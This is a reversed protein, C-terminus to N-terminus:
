ISSKFKSARQLMEAAHALSASSGGGALRAIEQTRAEGALASLRTHTANEDSSKEILFHKDAMSAIQPLHTVCVVQRGRSIVALKEAVVQAIRGSIGTDIEDFIMTPIGGRDAAVTKLALMIRSVEGGSAVKRLPKVPEGRNTSIYFEAMDFGNATFEADEIGLMDSFRVEFCANEMGLDHLQQMVLTEFRKAAARRLESLRVCRKYLTERLAQAKENLENQLEESGALEELERQLERLFEGTVLPDGYKRRLSAILALRDEIRELADPDFLASDMDDRVTSAVEELAYYADDVSAALEGYRADVDSLGSLRRSVDRLASLVSMPEADYLATYSASLAEMIREANHLRARQVQLEEEEGETINAQKLENIQFKLIDIRREREGESGFLSKLRKLVANYDAYAQRVEAAAQGISDDFSDLVAIHNKEDLLSQHEHQGHVDVLRDSIAKLVGLTVLTGNVRCVNRGLASLERSLVLEGDHEIQQEELIDEVGRADSFWAEVVASTAGTRIMDRDAREGLVLNVSDIIISKGAGTEGSLVNLGGAFDVELFDILAINRIILRNLM